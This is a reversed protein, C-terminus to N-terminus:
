FCTKPAIGYHFFFRLFKFYYNDTDGTKLFAIINKREHSKNKHLDFVKIPTRRQFCCDYMSSKRWTNQLYYLLQMAFFFLVAASKQM